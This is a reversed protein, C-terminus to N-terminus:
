NAVYNTWYSLNNDAWQLAETVNAFNPVDLHTYKAGVQRVAEMTDEAQFEAEARTRKFAIYADVVNGPTGDSGQDGTTNFITVNGGSNEVAYAFIKGVTETPGPYYKINAVAAAQPTNQTDAAHLKQQTSFGAPSNVAGSTTIAFLRNQQASAM